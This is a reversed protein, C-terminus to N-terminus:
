SKSANKKEEYKKYAELWKLMKCDHKHGSYISGACCYYMSGILETNEKMISAARKLLFEAKM